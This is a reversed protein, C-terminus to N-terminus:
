ERKQRIRSSRRPSQKTYRQTGFDRAWKVPFYVHTSVVEDQNPGVEIAIFSILTYTACGVGIHWVSHLHLWERCTHQEVIWAVFALFMALVGTLGIARNPENSTNIIRILLLIVTVGTIVAYPVVFSEYHQSNCYLVTLATCGGIAIIGPFDTFPRFCAKGTLPELLEIVHLGLYLMPLEDMSQSFRDLTAHFYLSGIAVWLSLFFATIVFENKHRLSIALGYLSSAIWPLM